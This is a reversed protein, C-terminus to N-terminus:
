MSWGSTAGDYSAALFDVFARVAPRLGRTTPFVLHITVDDSHWDPLIHTLRGDAIARQVAEAPLLAVGGGACAVDILINFESTWLIPDITLTRSAAAPGHVTWTQREPHERFSLFPLDAIDDAAPSVPHAAAFHPSAVFILRSTGLKRMTMSEDPLQARARIAVDIREEILDVARNTAQLQVRVDPCRGLFARIVRPMVNRAIGTPCSVRIIGVPDARHNAVDRDARELDVLAAQCHAYYESGIDTLQVRRTSRELLRVGLRAELRDVQRSISSKPRELARAAASFGGHKAM